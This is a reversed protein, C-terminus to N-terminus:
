GSWLIPEINFHSIERHEIYYVKRGQYVFYQLFPIQNEISHEKAFSSNDTVIDGQLERSISECVDTDNVVNGM